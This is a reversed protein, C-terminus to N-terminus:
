NANRVSSAIQGKWQLFEQNKRSYFNRLQAIRPGLLRRQAPASAATDGVMDIGTIVLTAMGSFAGIANGEPMIYWVAAGIIQFYTKFAYFTSIHREICDCIQTVNPLTKTGIDPNKLRRIFIQFISVMREFYGVINTLIKGSAELLGKEEEFSKKLRVVDLDDKREKSLIAQQQKALETVQILNKKIEEFSGSAAEVMNLLKRKKSQFFMNQFFGSDSSQLQIIEQELTQSSPALYRKVWETYRPYYRLQNAAATNWRRLGKRYSGEDASNMLEIANEKLALHLSIKTVASNVLEIFGKETQNSNEINLISMLEYPPM